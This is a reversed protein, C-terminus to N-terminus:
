NRVRSFIVKGSTADVSFRYKMSNATAKINYVYTSSTSVQNTETLQGSNSNVFSESNRSIENRFDFSKSEKSKGHKVSIGDSLSIEEFTVASIDTGIVQAVVNKIEDESKLSINEAQAQNRILTTQAQREKSDQVNDYMKYAFASGGGLLLLGLLGASSVKAIKRADLIEAKGKFNNVLKKM